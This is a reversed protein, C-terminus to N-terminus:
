VLKYYLKVPIINKKVYVNIDFSVLIGYCFDELLMIISNYVELWIISLEADLLLLLLMFGFLQLSCWLNCEIILYGLSLACM